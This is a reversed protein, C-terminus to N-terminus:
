SSLLPMNVTKHLLSGLLDSPGSDMVTEAPIPTFDFAYDMDNLLAFHHRGEGSLFTGSNDSPDIGDVSACPIAM